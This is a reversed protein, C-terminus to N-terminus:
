RRKRLIVGLGGLALIAMTAPEPVVNLIVSGSTATDISYTFAGPMTGLSLGNDTLSGTYTLLTYQGAQFGTLATVNLIGDLTLDGDVAVKDNAGTLSGLEFDLVSAANLVLTGTNLTGPSSGPALHGGDNVTVAGVTGSGGLTGDSNVTVASSASLSGDVQLKGANITTAGTYTSDGSLIQTGTGIKTVSVVGFQTIAGSFDGNANGDGITYTVAASGPNYLNGSGYLGNMTGSARHQLVGYVYLNGSRGAGANPLIGGSWMSVRGHVITDGTYTSTSADGKLDLGGGGPTGATNGYFVVGGSGSIAGNIESVKGNTFGIIGQATGFDLDVSITTKANAVLFVAGSTVTLKGSGDVTTATSGGNVFLSNVTTNSNVTTTTGTALRVNNTSVTGDSITSVFETSTNLPRIGNADYTVFTSGNDSTTAGGIAWPIISINTTGAAGGGGVLGTPATTFEINGTNAAQNAITDGGLSDGRFLVVGNDVRVLSAATLRINRNSNADLTVVNVGGSLGAGVTLNGTITDLTNAHSDGLTYLTGGKITVSKALTKSGTHLDYRLTAGSNATIASDAATTAAGYFQATGDMVIIDGGGTVSTNFKKPGGGTLTFTHGATDIGLTGSGLEFFGTTNHWTQDASLVIAPKINFSINATNYIGGSGLTLTNGTNITVSGGVGDLFNIGQWSLDGGLVLTQSSVTTADWQAVDGSGPVTGGVWSSGVNLDTSNDDKVITGAHVTGSLILVLGATLLGVAQIIRANRMTKEKM